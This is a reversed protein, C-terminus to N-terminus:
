TRVIVSAIIYVAKELQIQFEASRFVSMWILLAGFVINLCARVVGDLDTFQKFM